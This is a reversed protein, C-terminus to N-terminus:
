DEGSTEKSFLKKVDYLTGWLDEFGWRRSLVVAMTVYIVFVLSGATTGAAIFALIDVLLGSFMFWLFREEKKSDEAKELRGQLQSVQIDTSSPELVQVLSKSEKVPLDTPQESNTSSM